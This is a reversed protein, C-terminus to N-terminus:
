KIFIAINWSIGRIWFSGPVMADIEEMSWVSLHKEYPNGDVEGQPYNVPTSIVVHKFREDAIQIAKQADEKTMHELVDGFIICDGSVKDIADIFSSVYLEDYLDNLHFREVYPEWAEIGIWKYGKDVLMLPYTGRGCGVDVVVSIDTQKDFWERIEKKGERSSSAMNPGSVIKSDTSRQVSQM